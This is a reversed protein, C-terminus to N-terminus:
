DRGNERGCAAAPRRRRRRAGGGSRREGSLDRSVALKATAAEGEEGIAAHQSATCAGSDVGSDDSGTRRTQLSSAVSPHGLALPAVM